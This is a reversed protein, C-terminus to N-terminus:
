WGSGKAIAEVWDCLITSLQANRYAQHVTLMDSIKTHGMVEPTGLAALTIGAIIDHPLQALNAHLLRQLFPM